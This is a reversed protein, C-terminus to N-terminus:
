PKQKSYQTEASSVIRKERTLLLANIRLIVTGSLRATTANAHGAIRHSFRLMLARGTARSHLSTEDGQYTQGIARTRGNEVKCIRLIHGGRRRSAIVERDNFGKFLLACNPLLKDTAPVGVFTGGGRSRDKRQTVISVRFPPGHNEIRVNLLDPFTAIRHNWSGYIGFSNRGSQIADPLNVFGGPGPGSVVDGKEVNAVVHHVVQLVFVHHKELQDGTM